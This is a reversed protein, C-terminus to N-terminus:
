GGDKKGERRQVRTNGPDLRGETDDKTPLGAWTSRHEHTSWCGCGPLFGRRFDKAGASTLWYGQSIRSTAWDVDVRRDGRPTTKAEGSCGCAQGCSAKVRERGRQSAYDFGELSGACGYDGCAQDPGRKGGADAGTGATRSRM